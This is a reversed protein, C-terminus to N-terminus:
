LFSHQHASYGEEVGGGGGGYKVASEHFNQKFTGDPWIPDVHYHYWQFPRSFSM